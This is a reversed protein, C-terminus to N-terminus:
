RIPGYIIKKNIYETLKDIPTFINLIKKYYVEERYSYVYVITGYKLELNEEKVVRKRKKLTKLEKIDEVLSFGEPLHSLGESLRFDDKEMTWNNYEFYESLSLNEANNPDHPQLLYIGYEVSFEILIRNILTKLEEREFNKLSKHHVQYERRFFAKFANHLRLKDTHKNDGFRKLIQEVIFYYTNLLKETGEKM